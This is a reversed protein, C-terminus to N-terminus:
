ACEACIGVVDLRHGAARFGTAGIARELVAEVSREGRPSVVFDDVRGCSVCILHHHHGMLDEALEYRARDDSSVVKQVVGVQELVALNRYVSSQTLKPRTDLLDPITAPRGISALLGVLERRGSTYFQDADRLLSGAADHVQGLDVSSGMFSVRDSFSFRHSCSGSLGQVDTHASRPIREVGICRDAQRLGLRQEAFQGVVDGCCAIDQDVICPAGGEDRVTLRIRHADDGSAVDRDPGIEGGHQLFDDVATQSPLMSTALTLVKPPQKPGRNVRIAPVCNPVSDRWVHPCGMSMFVAAFQWPQTGFISQRTTRIKRLCLKAQPPLKMKESPM